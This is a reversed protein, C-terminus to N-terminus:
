FIVNDLNLLDISEPFIMEYNLGLNNDYYINNDVEYELYFNIKKVDKTINLKCDWLETSYSNKGNLLSKKGYNFYQFYYLDAINNKRWNDTSYILKIKKHYSINRVCVLVKIEVDNFLELRKAKVLMINMSPNLLIGNDDDYIKLVYKLDNWLKNGKHDQFYFTFELEDQISTSKFEFYYLKRGNESHIIDLSQSDWKDGIKTYIFPSGTMNTTTYCIIKYINYPTGDGNIFKAGWANYLDIIKNM